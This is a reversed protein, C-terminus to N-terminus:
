VCLFLRIKLKGSIIKVSIGLDTQEMKANALNKLNVASAIKKQDYNKHTLVYM